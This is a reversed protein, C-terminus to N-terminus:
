PNKKYIFFFNFDLDVFELYCWETACLILVCIIYGVVLWGVLSFVGASSFEKVPWCIVGYSIGVQKKFGEYMILM